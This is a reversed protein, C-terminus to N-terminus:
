LRGGQRYDGKLSITKDLLYRDNWDTGLEGELFEPILLAGDVFKAAETAKVIGVNVGTNIETQRDNDGAIIIRAMPYRVKFARAVPKLNRANFACVVESLPEYHAALTVGTAFGECIVITAISGNFRIPFFAGKTQGGKLFLKGGKDDIFQLSCLDFSGNSDFQYVPVLLTKDLQGVRNLQNVEQDIGKKVFYPHKPNAYLARENLLKNARAKAERYLQERSQRDIAEQKKRQAERKRQETRLRQKDAPNMPAFKFGNQKAEHIITAITVGGGSRISKWTSSFAKRDFNSSTASWELMMGKAAEGFESKASMLFRAWDERPLDAPIYTLMGSLMGLDVPDNQQMKM